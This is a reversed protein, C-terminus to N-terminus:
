NNLRNVKLQQVSTNLNEQSEPHLVTQMHILQTQKCKM